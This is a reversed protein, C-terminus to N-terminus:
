LLSLSSSPSVRPSLLLELSVLSNKSVRLPLILKLICPRGSEVTGFCSSMRLSVTLLSIWWNSVCGFRSDSFASKSFCWFNLGNLSFDFSNFRLMPFVSYKSIHSIEELICHGSQEKYQSTPMSFQVLPLHMCGDSLFRCNFLALYSTKDIAPWMIKEFFGARPALCPGDIRCYM